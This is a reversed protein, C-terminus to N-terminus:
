GHYLPITGGAILMSAIFPANTSGIGNGMVDPYNQNEMAVIIINDFGSGSAHAIPLVHMAIIGIILIAVLLHARLTSTNRGQVRAPHHRPDSGKSGLRTEVNM